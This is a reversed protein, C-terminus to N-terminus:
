NGFLSGGHGNLGGGSFGKFVGYGNDNNTCARAAQGRGKGGTVPTGLHQQQFAIV